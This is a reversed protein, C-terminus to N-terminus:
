DVDQATSAAAKPRVRSRKKPESPHTAAPRKKAAAKKDKKRKKTEGDAEKDSEPAPPEHLVSQPPGGESEADSDAVAIASRADDM